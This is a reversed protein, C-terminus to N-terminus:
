KIQVVFIGHKLSRLKIRLLTKTIESVRYCVQRENRVHGFKIETPVGVFIFSTKATKRLEEAYVGPYSRNAPWSWRRGCGERKGDVGREVIRRYTSMVTVFGLYSYLNLRQLYQIFDESNTNVDTRFKSSFIERHSTRCFSPPSTTLLIM